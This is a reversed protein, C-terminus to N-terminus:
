RVWVEVRRNLARGADTDNCAVPALEGYAREVFTLAPGRQQGAPVLAARVAAVRKRSIALNSQFRGVADAFGALVITKGEYDKSALLGRLQALEQLGRPEIQTSGGSFRVTASLRSGPRLDEILKQMLAADYDEAAANLAYAIRGSHDLFPSTEIQQDVFRSEKLAAQVRPSLAFNMLAQALPNKPRGATYFFLRRTLPYEETKAAFVSPRVVMGCQSEINLPKARRVYAISNVGIGLPDAAVKDTWETAHQLRIAEPTIKLNRPAMVASEFYSWTGMEQTPAYVNIKGPPLGVQDWDTIQGAFIKAINDLSLSVAPNSRAVLVVLADLAWVHQNNALQMNPQGAAALQREEEPVIPRSTWVVDAEGKALAAFGAPVGQRLVNVQGVLRGNQTALRFELNRPDSGVSSSVTLGLSAAYADILRPMFETGIASGGIWTTTVASAAPLQPRQEVADTPCAPSVCDFRSADLSLTGVDPAVIVWTRKNFSQLRGSVEFSGGKMRLTVTPEAPSQAMAQSLAAVWWWLTAFILIPTSGLRM